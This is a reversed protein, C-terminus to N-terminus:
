ASAGAPTAPGEAATGVADPKAESKGHKAAYNKMATAFLEKLGAMTIDPATRDPHAVVEAIYHGLYETLAIATVANSFMGVVPVLGLSVNALVRAGAGYWIIKKIQKWPLDKRKVGHASALRVCLLYHMPIVVLEDLLPIPQTVFSVVATTASYFMTVRRPDKKKVGPHYM